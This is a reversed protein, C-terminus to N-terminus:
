RRKRQLCVELCRQREADCVSSGKTQVRCRDHLTQCESACTSSQSAPGGTAPVSMPRSGIAARPPSAAADVPTPESLRAGAVLGVVILMISAAGGFLINRGLM